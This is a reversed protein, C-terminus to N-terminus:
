LGAIDLDAVYSNFEAMAMAYRKAEIDPCVDEIAKLADRAPQGKAWAKSGPFSGDYAMTVFYGYAACLQADTATATDITIEKPSPYNTYTLQM